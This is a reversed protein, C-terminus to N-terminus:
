KMGEMLATDAGRRMSELDPECVDWNIVEDSLMAKVDVERVTAQLDWAYLKKRAQRIALYQSDMDNVAERYSEIFQSWWQKEYAMECLKMLRERPLDDYLTNFLSKYKRIEVKTAPELKRKFSAAYDELLVLAQTAIDNYSAIGDEYEDENTHIFSPYQFFGYSMNHPKIYDVLNKFAAEITQYQPELYQILISRNTKFEHIKDQFMSTKAASIAREVPHSSAKFPNIYRDSIAVDKTPEFSFGRDPMEKIENMDNMDMSLQFTKLREFAQAYALLSKYMEAITEVESDGQILDILRLEDFADPLIPIFKDALKKDFAFGPIEHFEASRIVVQQVDRLRELPSLKIALQDENVYNDSDNWGREIGRPIILVELSQINAMYIKQCLYLLEKETAYPPTVVASILIKWHQVYRAAPIVSNQSELVNDYTYNLHKARTLACSKPYWDALSYPKYPMCGILFTNSGYLINMGENHIQSNIRLITPFLGFSAQDDDIAFSEGLLPNLLLRKWILRHCDLNLVNLLPCGEVPIEPNGVPSPLHTQLLDKLKALQDNSLFKAMEHSLAAPIGHYSSVTPATSKSELIDDYETGTIELNELLDQNTPGTGLLEVPAEQCPSVIGNCQSSRETTENDM